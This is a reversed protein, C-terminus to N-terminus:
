ERTLETIKLTNKFVDGINTKISMNSNKQRKQSFECSAKGKFQVANHPLQILHGGYTGPM